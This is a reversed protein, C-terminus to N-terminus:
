ANSLSFFVIPVWGASIRLAEGAMQILDCGKPVDITMALHRLQHLSRLNRQLIEATIENRRLAWDIL